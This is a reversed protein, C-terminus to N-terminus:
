LLRQRVEPKSYAFPLPGSTEVGHITFSDDKAVAPGMDILAVSPLRNIDLFDTCTAM